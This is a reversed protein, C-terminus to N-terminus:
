SSKNKSAQNSILSEKRSMINASYREQVLLMAVAGILGPIAFAIFNQYIPLELTLLVGGMLPGIIAGLRGVGLAWGVGSSRIESPYYQTTYANAIVQTGITAAGAVAVLTYLIFMNVEFGLLSISLLAAVFFLILVKKPSWKDALWGGGIAGFIAGLNLVLLFLISSGLPYGATEMLEPLWTNMGYIMLLCMFFAIWLMITSFGRGQKFLKTIVNGKDQEPIEMIFRDGEKYSYSTNIKELISQVRGNEQKKLLIHPSDPLTKYMFPLLLLPIGGIFFLSQWGFQPMLLIALGAAMIGGFSYGSFMIAVSTSKLNKPAYESMLAIANPMVGGLGLGAIFRFTGFVYINSTFGILFTFVSFVAICSIIINKRGIRDALPGFVLAGIMMGVLALSSLLGAQNSTIGFDEILVPLASGLIVLDYGDFFIAFMCWFLILGHNRNFKSQDITEKVNIERMM